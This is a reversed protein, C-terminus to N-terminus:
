GHNSIAMGSSTTFNGDQPLLAGGEDYIVPGVNAQLAHFIKAHDCVLPMVTVMIDENRLIGPETLLPQPQDLGVVARQPHTITRGM